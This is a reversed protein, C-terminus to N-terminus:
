TDPMALLAGNYMTNWWIVDVNLYVDHFREFQKGMKNKCEEKYIQIDRQVCLIKLKVQNIWKSKKYTYREQQQPFTAKLGKRILLWPSRPFYTQDKGRSRVSVRIWSEFGATCNISVAISTEAPGVVASSWFYWIGALSCIYYQKGWYCTPGGSM